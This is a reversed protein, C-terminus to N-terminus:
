LTYVEIKGTENWKWFFGFWFNVSIFFFYVHANIKTYTMALGDDISFVNTHVLKIAIGTGYM